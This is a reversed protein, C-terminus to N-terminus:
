HHRSADFSLVFATEALAERDGVLYDRLMKYAQFEFKLVTRCYSAFMEFGAKPSRGLDRWSLYAEILILGQNERSKSVAALVDRCRELETKTEDCRCYTFIACAVKLVFSPDTRNPHRTVIDKLKAGNYGEYLCSFLKLEIDDQLSTESQLLLQLLDDEDVASAASTPSAAAFSDNNVDDDDEDAVRIFALVSPLLRFRKPLEKETADKPKTETVHQIMKIINETDPQPRANIMCDLLTTHLESSVLRARTRDQATAIVAAWCAFIRTNDEWLQEDVIKRVIGVMVRQCDQIGIVNADNLVAMVEGVLMREDEKKAVRLVRQIWHQLYEARLNSPLNKFFQELEQQNSSAKYDEILKYVEDKAPLPAAPTAPSAPEAVPRKVVGHRQFKGSSIMKEVEAQQRARDESEKRDLEELTMPGDNFKKRKDVWGNDQQEILDMLIFKMRQSTTGSTILGRISKMYDGVYETLTKQSLKPVVKKLLECFMELEYEEPKRKRRVHGETDKGYLLHYLVFNVVKENVMGSVFLHGLFKINCKLKVKLIHRKESIEEDPLANGAADYMDEDRLAYPEEFQAQCKDIIARRITKGVGEVGTFQVLDAMLKAYLETYLEDEPRVAKSYMMNVV